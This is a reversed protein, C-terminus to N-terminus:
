LMVPRTETLGCDRCERTETKYDAAYQWNMWGHYGDACKTAKAADRAARDRADAEQRAKDAMRRRQNARAVDRGKVLAKDQEYSLKKKPAM